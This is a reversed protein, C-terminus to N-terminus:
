PRKVVIAIRRNRAQNEPIAEGEGDRNKAVPLAQGYGVIRLRKAPVGAQELVRVVAGARHASLEWNSPLSGASVPTDDTHGEVEVVTGETALEAVVGALQGVIREAEGSLEVQGAEYLVTSAMDIRLGRAHSAVNVEDRLGLQEVIDEVQAKAAETPDGGETRDPATSPATPPAGFAEAIAQRAADQGEEDTTSALTFLMVFFAMLLTIADAYTTLWGEDEDEVAPPRVRARM